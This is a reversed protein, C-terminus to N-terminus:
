PTVKEVPKEQMDEWSLDDQSEGLRRLQHSMALFTTVYGPSLVRVRYVKRVKRELVRLDMASAQVLGSEIVALCGDFENFYTAHQLIALDGKRFTTSM